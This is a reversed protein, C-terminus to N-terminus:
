LVVKTADPLGALVQLRMEPINGVPRIKFPTVPTKLPIGVCTPTEPKTIPAALPVNGLALWFTLMEIAAALAAGTIM